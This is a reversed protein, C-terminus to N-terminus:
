HRVIEWLVSTLLWFLVHDAPVVLASTPFCPTFDEELGRMSNTLWSEDRGAVHRATYLIRASVRVPDDLRRSSHM